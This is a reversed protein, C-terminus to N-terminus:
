IEGVPEKKDCPVNPIGASLTRWFGNPLCRGIGFARHPRNTTNVLSSHLLKTKFLIVEGKDMEMYAWKEEPAYKQIDDERDVTHIPCEKHSYPIVTLCGDGRM